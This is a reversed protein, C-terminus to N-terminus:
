YRIGAVKLFAQPLFDVLDSANMAESGKEPLALDGALGHLFVGLIATDRSSYGQALLGTLLGTLVDGSGGTAMGPNGTPNFFVRGDPCAISTYAGKLVVVCGHNHAFVVQRELRDFDDVAQGALREFEGPHPTLISNEPLLELMAPASALINLADADLVMPKRFSKMLAVLADGTQHAQGLGPGIGVASFRDSVPVASLLEHHEDVTAMAEPVASQIIDYGCAPVHVHLLGAGSRSAARAALVAAGMKGYSGAVLLAHGFTGKHDFRRRPRLMRKVDKMASVFYKTDAGRIYGRDLGIDVTTWEGCFPFANPLLFALKPLQFSVTYHAQVIEGTSPRDASLGSPIDVAIRTADCRNMWRIAEAYIGEVPRSLGSGFIADILVDCGRFLDDAPSTAVEVVPAKGKLRQYNIKFDESEPVSGRLVWVNVGYAAEVLMRAIGLGDGGNNGTGCVVGVRHSNDIHEIFWNAFARCAREMLDISTVPESSITHADLAKIQRTDLIRIM